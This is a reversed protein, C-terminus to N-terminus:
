SCERRRAPVEITCSAGAAPNDAVAQEVAGVEVIARAVSRQVIETRKSLLDRRAAGHGGLIDGRLTLGYVVIFAQSKLNNALPMATLAAAM